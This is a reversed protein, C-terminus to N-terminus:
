TGMAKSLPPPTKPAAMSVSAPSPSTSTLLTRVKAPAQARPQARALEFDQRRRRGFPQQLVIVVATLQGGAPLAKGARQVHLADLSIVVIVFLQQDAAVVDKAAPHRDGVHVLCARVRRWGRQHTPVTCATRVYRVGPKKPSGFLASIGQVPAFALAQACIASRGLPQATRSLGM